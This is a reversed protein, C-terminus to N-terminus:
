IADLCMRTKPLHCPVRGFSTESKQSLYNDPYIPDKFGM